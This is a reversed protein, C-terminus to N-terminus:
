RLFVEFPVSNVGFFFFTSKKKQIEYLEKDLKWMCFDKRKKESCHHSCAIPKIVPMLEQRSAGYNIEASHLGGRRDAAM